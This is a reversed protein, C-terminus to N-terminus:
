EQVISKKQWSSVLLRLTLASILGVLIGVFIDLPFHVGVVVRALASLLAFVLYAIGWRRNVLLLSFGLAFMISAHSSPFSADFPEPILVNVINHAFPRPREIYLRILTIVIARSFVAAALAELVYKGRARGKKRFVMFVALGGVLFFITWQAFIIAFIDGWASKGALANLWLFLQYDWNLFSTVDM